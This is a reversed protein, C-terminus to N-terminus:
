ESASFILIEPPLNLIESGDAVTVTSPKQNVPLFDRSWRAANSCSSPVFPPLPASGVEAWLQLLPKQFDSETVLRFQRPPHPPNGSTEAPENRYASADNHRM